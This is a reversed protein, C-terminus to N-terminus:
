SYKLQEELNNIKLQMTNNSGTLLDIKNKQAEVTSLLLDIKNKQADILSTQKTENINYLEVFASYEKKLNTVDLSKINITDMQAKLDKVVDKLLMSSQM